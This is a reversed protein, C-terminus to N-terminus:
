NGTAYLEFAKRMLPAKQEDIVHTKHGKEGVTRYGLKARM